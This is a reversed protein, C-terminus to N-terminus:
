RIDEESAFIIVARSHPTELLQQIAKDFDELKPNHPIKLSQAMCIGGKKHPLILFHYPRQSSGGMIVRVCLHVTPLPVSKCFLRPDCYSSNESPFRLFISITFMDVCYHAKIICDHNSYLRFSPRVTYVNVHQCHYSFWLPM